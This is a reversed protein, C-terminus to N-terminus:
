SGSDFLVVLATINDAGMGIEQRRGLAFDVLVQSADDGRSWAAGCLAACTEADAVDSVGDSCLM